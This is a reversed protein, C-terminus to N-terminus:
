FLRVNPKQGITTDAVAPQPHRNQCILTTRHTYHTSRALMKGCGNEVECKRLGSSYAM